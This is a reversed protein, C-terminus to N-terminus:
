VRGFIIFNENIRRAHVKFVEGDISNISLQLMISLMIHMTALAEFDSLNDADTNTALPM